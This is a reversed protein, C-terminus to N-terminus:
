QHTLTAARVQCALRMDGDNIVANVAIRLHLNHKM